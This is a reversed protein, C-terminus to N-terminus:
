SLPRASADELRVQADAYWSWLGRIRLVESGLPLVNVNSHKTLINVSTM